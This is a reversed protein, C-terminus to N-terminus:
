AQIHGPIYKEGKAFMLFAIMGVAHINRSVNEMSAFFIVLHKLNKGDIPNCFNFLM